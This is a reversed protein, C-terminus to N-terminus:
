QTEGDWGTVVMHGVMSIDFAQEEQSIYLAYLFVNLVDSMCYSIIIFCHM